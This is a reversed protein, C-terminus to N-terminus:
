IGRETIRLSELIHSFWFIEWLVESVRPFTLVRNAAMIITM